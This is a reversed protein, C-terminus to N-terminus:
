DKKKKQTQKTPALDNTDICADKMVKKGTSSSAKQSAAPKETTKRDTSKEAKKEYKKILEDIEQDTMNYKPDDYYDDYKDKKKEEKKEFIPVSQKQKEGSSKTSTSTPISSSSTSETTKGESPKVRKKKKPVEVPEEESCCEECMEKMQQYSSYMLWSMTIPLTILFIFLFDGKRLRSWVQGWWRRRPSQDLICEDEQNRKKKQGDYTLEKMLMNKGAGPIGDPGRVEIYIESYDINKDSWRIEISGFNNRGVYREEAKELKKLIFIFVM